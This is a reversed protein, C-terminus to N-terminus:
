RYGDDVWIQDGWISKDPMAGGNCSEWFQRAAQMTRTRLQSTAMQPPGDLERGCGQVCRAAGFRWGVRAAMKELRERAENILHRWLEFVRAHTM